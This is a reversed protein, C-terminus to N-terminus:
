LSLYRKEWKKLIVKPMETGQYQPSNIYDKLGKIMCGLARKKDHKKPTFERFVEDIDAQM